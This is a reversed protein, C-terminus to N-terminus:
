PQGGVFFRFLVQAVAVGALMFGVTAILSAKSGQAVGLISHGSTWGGAWRAGFGVLFGGLGFAMAKALLSEGFVTEFLGMRLKLTLAGALAASILGGLPIGLIFWLRWPDTFPKSRFFELGSVLSCLSGFGTSVALGKGAVSALLVVFLGIGARGLWFSWGHAVLPSDMM